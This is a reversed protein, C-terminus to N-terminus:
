GTGEFVPGYGFQELRLRVEASLRGEIEEPVFLAVFDISEDFGARSRKMRHFDLRPFGDSGIEEATEVEPAGLESTRGHYGPEDM